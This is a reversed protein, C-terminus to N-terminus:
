LAFESNERSRGPQAPIGGTSFSLARARSDRRLARHERGNVWRLPLGMLGSFLILSGFVGFMVAFGDKALWGAISNGFLAAVGMFLLSLGFGTSFREDGVFEM